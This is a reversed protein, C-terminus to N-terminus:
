RMAEEVQNTGNEGPMASRWLRGLSYGCDSAPILRRDIIKGFRAATPEVRGGLDVRPHKERKSTPPIDPLTTPAIDDSCRARARGEGEARHPGREMAPSGAAPRNGVVQQLKTTAARPRAM